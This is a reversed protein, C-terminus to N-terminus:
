HLGPPQSGGSDYLCPCIDTMPHCWIAMQSGSCSEPRLVMKQLIRSYHRTRLWDAAPSFYLNLCVDTTFRPLVVFSVELKLEHKHQRTLFPTNRDALSFLPFFDEAWQRGTTRKNGLEASPETSCQIYRFFNPIALRGPGPPAMRDWEICTAKHPSDAPVGRSSLAM